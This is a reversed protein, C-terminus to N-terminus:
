CTRVVGGGGEALVGLGPLRPLPHLMSARLIHPVSPLLTPASGRKEGEKVRGPQAPPPPVAWPLPQLVTM